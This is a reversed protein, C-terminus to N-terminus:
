NKATKKPTFDQNSFPPVDPRKIVNFGMSAAEHCGNCAATLGDYASVFEKSDKADITKEIRNLAPTIITPVLTTLPQPVKKHTPYLNVVDEYAEKLEDLEYKALDWNQNVAAFWLKGHRMQVTMMIEGLGAHPQEPTTTKSCAAMLLCCVPIVLPLTKM